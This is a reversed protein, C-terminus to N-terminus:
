LQKDKAASTVCLLDESYNIPESIFREVLEQAKIHSLRAEQSVDGQIISFNDFTEKSTNFTSHINEACKLELTAFYSVLLKTFGQSSIDITTKDDDLSIDALEHRAGAMAFQSFSFYHYIAYSLWTKNSGNPGCIITLDNIDIDAQQINGLNTIHLRM